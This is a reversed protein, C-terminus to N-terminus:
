LSTCRNGTNGTPKQEERVGLIMTKFFYVLALIMIWITLVVITKSIFELNKFDIIMPKLWLWEIVFPSISVALAPFAVLPIMILSNLCGVNTKFDFKNLEDYISVPMVTRSFDDTYLIDLNQNDFKFHNFAIKRIIKKLEAKHSNIVVFRFIIFSFILPIFIKISEVNKISLFGLNISDIAAFDTLYYIFILLILFFAIRNNEKDLDKTKSLIQSFYLNINEQNNSKLLKEIDTNKM